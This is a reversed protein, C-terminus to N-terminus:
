RVWCCGAELAASLYEQLQSSSLIDGSETFARYWEATKALSTKLPWVPKWGLKLKAMSNDLCLLNAEHLQATATTHWSVQPWHHKIGALIESVTRNDASDPGINWATAISSDGELLKQGVLLYGSLCELVHQWPRTAKPSRIELSKRSMTARVVDPILRDECWDGGGIVNGARISALLPSNPNALFSARFSSAVLECCAKSASYPDHGGLRDCERYGWAWEQNQYVKDTTILVIARISPQYRCAELLNVTGMVNTMWTERPVRYSKRVLPQAALHFVIEPSASDMSSALWDYNAIDGRFTPMALKLLESHSPKTDPELALGCVKAGLIQLWLSLWSGKFGSDGTVLVCRDRYIDNFQIV